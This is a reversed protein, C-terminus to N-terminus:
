SGCHRPEQYVIGNRGEQMWDGDQVVSVAIDGDREREVVKRSGDDGVELKGSDGKKIGRISDQEYVCCWNPKFQVCLRVPGLM